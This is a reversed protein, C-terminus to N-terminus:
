NRNKTSDGNKPAAYLAYDFGLDTATDLRVVYGDLFKCRTPNLTYPEFECLNLQTALSKATNDHIKNSWGRNM